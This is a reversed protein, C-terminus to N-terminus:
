KNGYYFIKDIAVDESKWNGRKPHSEKEEKPKELKVQGTKKEPELGAQEATKAEPMPRSKLEKKINNIEEALANIASRFDNFKQQTMEKQRDFINKLNELTIDAAQVKNESTVKQSESTIEKNLFQQAKEVAEDRTTAVGQNLLEQALKNVKQIDEIM